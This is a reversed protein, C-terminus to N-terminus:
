ETFAEELPPVVQKKRSMVGDIWLSSDEVKGGFAEEFKEQADPTGVFLLESGEKLVDTVMLTIMDYGESNMKDQMVQLLDDKMALVESADMVEAQGIGIKAGAFDFEKYDGTVIDAPTKSGIDSKAKLVEVGYDEVDLGLQSALKNAIEQDTETSTPSKFLVTDSIISSLLAGAVDNPVEVDYEGYKQAVITATCGVPKVLFFIPNGTQVDGIRHHDLVEIVEADEINDVAQSVENHDVLIIEKGAADEILEPDDLDFRDLVFRTENNVEGARAAVVNDEGLLNKLRAYSIASCISDTDPSKHGVVYVKDSMEIVMM